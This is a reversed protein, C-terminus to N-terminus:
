HGRRLRLPKTGDAHVLAKYLAYSIEFEGGKGNEVFYHTEDSGEYSFAGITIGEKLMPYMQLVEKKDKHNFRVM